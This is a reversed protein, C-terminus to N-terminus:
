RDEAGIVGNGCCPGNSIDSYEKRLGDPDSWISEFREFLHGLLRELCEKRNEQRGTLQRISVPNPLESPFLMQNVNIGMGVISWNMRAGTLSNEILMGCIKRGEVYIDNPKKIRAAIGKSSLFDVVGLSCAMTLLEQSSADLHCEQGYSFFISFLLNKGKESLWVHEGQGRGCQQFDAAVVTRDMKMIDQFSLIDLMRHMEASTSDIKNHWIINNKYRQM